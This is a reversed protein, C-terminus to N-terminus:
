LFTVTHVETRVGTGRRSRCTRFLIGLPLLVKPPNRLLPSRNYQSAFIKANLAPLFAPLLPPTYCLAQPHHLCSDRSCTM